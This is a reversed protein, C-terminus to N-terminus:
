FGFSGQCEWCEEATLDRLAGLKTLEPQEYPERTEEESM